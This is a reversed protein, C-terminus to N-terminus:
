FHAMNWVSFHWIRWFHIFACGLNKSFKHWVSLRIKGYKFNPCFWSLQLCVTQRNRLWKLVKTINACPEKIFQVTYTKIELTNRYHFSDTERRGWFYQYGYTTSALVKKELFVTMKFPGTQFSVRKFNEFFFLFNEFLKENVKKNFFIFFFKSLSFFGQSCLVKIKDIKDLFTKQQKYKQVPSFFLLLM